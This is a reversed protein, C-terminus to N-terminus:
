PALIFGLTAFHHDATFVQSLKLDRMVAFSTCDTYSFKQDSYQKFIEWADMEYSENIRIYEVLEAKILQQLTEYFRVTATHHLNYRLLTITEDLVFNTTIFTYNDALLQENTLQAIIHDTDATDALAYWAWTDVFIKNM